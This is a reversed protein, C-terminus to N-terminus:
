ISAMLTSFYDCCKVLLGKNLCSVEFFAKAFFRFHSFGKAFLDFSAPTVATM